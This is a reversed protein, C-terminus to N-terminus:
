QLVQKKTMIQSQTSKSTTSRGVKYVSNQKKKERENYEERGKLLRKRRSEKKEKKRERKKRKRGKIAMWGDM